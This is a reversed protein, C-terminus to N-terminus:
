HKNLKDKTNFVFNMGSLSKYRKLYEIFRPANPKEIIASGLYYAPLSPYQHHKLHKVKYSKMSVIVPWACFVEGVLDNIRKNKSILGHVSEHMLLGLALYRAGIFVVTIIYISWHFYTECLFAAILIM